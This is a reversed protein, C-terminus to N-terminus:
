NCRGAFPVILTVILLTQHWQPQLDKHIANRSFRWIQQSKGIVKNYRVQTNPLIVAKQKRSQPRTVAFSSHAVIVRAHATGLNPLCFAGRKDCRQMRWNPYLLARICATTPSPTSFTPPSWTQRPTPCQWIFSKINNKNSLWSKIASCHSRMQKVLYVHDSPSRCKDRHQM